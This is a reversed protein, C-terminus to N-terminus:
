QVQEDLDFPIRREAIPLQERLPPRDFGVLPVPGKVHQQHAMPRSGRRVDLPFTPLETSCLAPFPVAPAEKKSPMAEGPIEPMQSTAGTRWAHTGPRGVRDSEKSLNPDNLEVAEAADM